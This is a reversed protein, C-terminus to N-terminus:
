KDGELKNMMPILVADVRACLNKVTNEILVDTAINYFTQERDLLSYYFVQNVAIETDSISEYSNVKLNVHLSIETGEKNGRVSHLIVMYGYNDTERVLYKDTNKYKFGQNKYYEQLKLGVKKIAESAKM